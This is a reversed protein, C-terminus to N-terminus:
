AQQLEDISFVQQLDRKNVPDGLPISELTLNNERLNEELNKLSQLHRGHQGAPPPSSSLRTPVRSYSSELPTTSCRARSLTSCSGHGSGTSRVSNWHCSYRLFLTRDQRTKMSVMKGRSDGPRQRLHMGLEDNKRVLRARLVRDERQNRARRLQHPGDEAGATVFPQVCTQLARDALMNEPCGRNPM